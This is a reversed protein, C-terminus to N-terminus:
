WLCQETPYWVEPQMNIENFRAYPDKDQGFLNIVVLFFLMPLLFLRFM